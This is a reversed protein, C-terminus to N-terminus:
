VPINNEELRVFSIVEYDTRIDIRMLGNGLLYNFGYDTTPFEVSLDANTFVITNENPETCLQKAFYEGGDIIYYIKIDANKNAFQIFYMKSLNNVINFHYGKNGDKVFPQDDIIRM